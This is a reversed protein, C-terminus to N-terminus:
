AHGSSEKVCMGDGEGRRRVKDGSGRATKKGLLSAFMRTAIKDKTRPESCSMAASTREAHSAAVLPTTDSATTAATRGAM